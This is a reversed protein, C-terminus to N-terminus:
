LVALVLLLMARLDQLYEQASSLHHFCRVLPVNQILGPVAFLRSQLHFCELHSQNIM